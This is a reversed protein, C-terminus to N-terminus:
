ALVQGCRGCAQGVYVGPYRADLDWIEYILAQRVRDLLGQHGADYIPPHFATHSLRSGM